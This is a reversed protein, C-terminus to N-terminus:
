ELIKKGNWLVISNVIALSSKKIANLSLTQFCKQLCTEHVTIMTQM